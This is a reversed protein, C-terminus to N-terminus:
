QQLRLHRLNTTQLGRLLAKNFSPLLLSWTSARLLQSVQQARSHQSRDVVSLISQPRQALQPATILGDAFIQRSDHIPQLRQITAPANGTGAGLDIARAIPLFPQVLNWLGPHAPSGLQEILLQISQLGQPAVQSRLKQGLAPFMLCRFQQALNGADTRDPCGAQDRQYLGSAGCARSDAGKAGCYVVFLAM